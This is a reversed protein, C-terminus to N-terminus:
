SNNAGQALAIVGRALAEIACRAEAATNGAAGVEIILSGATLDTNFRESRLTVPRCLGPDERELVATLKLALSLNKQWNPHYNGGADSGTMVLLQASPQGGVTASTVMQGETSDSADRHLDLVMRISPYQQLYREVTQRAGSYASNYDPYDHHTTDHIVGIGGAELLAALQQGMAVMNHANDLTRYPDHQASPADTYCETAHTHIILVTPEAAQLDWDLPQLLLAETDPRYDCRYLMEILSLDEATLTIGAKEPEEAPPKTEEPRITGLSGVPFRGTELFTVMPIFFAAASREPNALSLCVVAALTVASVAIRVTRYHQKM